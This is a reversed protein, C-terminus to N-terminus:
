ANEGSFGRLVRIGIPVSVSLTLLDALPQAFYIGPLGLLRPLILIAPIFFLGQRASALFTAEKAKGITQCMMNCLIVWSMLPFTLCQMRLAQSGISQVVEDGKRFVAVLHPASLFAATAVILLFVLATKVCFWFAERVRHYMGAGYNFGCVPQFGQGFGILASSAFMMIRSVVSMAAVAADGYGGAAVNLCITAVSALGQRWFSPLGGRMIETFDKMTPKFKSWSLHINGGKGFGYLLLLFSFFQSIITALAAGAVGMDFGFIFLPDLAINLVAGSVIGIMSYFASGQFRLQNNIVLSATMYPAGILIYRAYAKAHPLITPTAGLLKVLPELFILGLVSLFGGAFLASFFGVSCMKEANEYDQNGLARSIYNGSGHGFTFGIAQIIAMLSFVVGVAGTTSNDIKGVFFTDVMNYFSSILMSIITPVALTCVLKPIPTETMYRFKEEPSQERRM